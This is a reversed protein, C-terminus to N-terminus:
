SIENVSFVLEALGVIHERSCFPIGASLESCGVLCTIRGTSRSYPKDRATVTFHIESDSFIEELMEVSELLLRTFSKTRCPHAVTADGAMRRITVALTLCVVPRVSYTVTIQENDIM